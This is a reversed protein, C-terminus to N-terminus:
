LVWCFSCWASILVLSGHLWIDEISTPRRFAFCSFWLLSGIPCDLFLHSISETSGCFVCCPDVLFGGNRLRDKTAIARKSLLWMFARVKLPVGKSKFITVTFPCSIGRLNIRMYLSRVSFINNKELDWAVRDPGGLSDLTPPKIKQFFLALETLLEETAHVWELSLHWGLTGDPSVVISDRLLCVQNHIVSFLRPFQYCLPTGCWNSFWTMTRSGDVPCWRIGSRFVAEAKLVQKWFVLCRRIKGHWGSYILRYRYYNHLILEVWAASSGNLVKSWQRGLLALNFLGIDM